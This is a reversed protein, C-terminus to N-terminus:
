DELMGEDLIGGILRQQLARPLLVMLTNSLRQRCLEGLNGLGLRLQYRMMIRLGAEALRSECVPLPSTLTGDLARRICFCDSMQGLPEVQEVAERVGGLTELRLQQQLGGQTRCEHRGLTLCGRFDTLGVGTGTFQTPLHSLRRLEERDQKPQPSKILHARLM